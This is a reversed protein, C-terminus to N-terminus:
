LSLLHKMKVLILDLYFLKLIQYKGDEVSLPRAVLWGVSVSPCVPAYPLKGGLLYM